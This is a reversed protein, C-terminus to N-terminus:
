AARKLPQGSVIQSDGPATQEKAADERNTLEHNRNTTSRGDRASKSLPESEDESVGAHAEVGLDETLVHDVLADQGAELSEAVPSVGENSVESANTELWQGILAEEARIEAWWPLAEDFKRLREIQSTSEFPRGSFRLVKSLMLGALIDRPDEDLMLRLNQEASPWQEQLMAVQAVQLRKLQEQQDVEYRHPRLTESRANKYYSWTWWAALFIGLPWRLIPELWGTWMFTSLLWLDLLAGFAISELLSTFDGRFWLRTLGPWLRWKMPIAVQEAM